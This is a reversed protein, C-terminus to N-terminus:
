DPALLDFFIDQCDCKFFENIKNQLENFMPFSASTNSSFGPIMQRINSQLLLIENQLDKNEKQLQDRDKRMNIFKNTMISLKDHIDENENINYTDALQSSKLNNKNEVSYNNKNKLNSYNDM